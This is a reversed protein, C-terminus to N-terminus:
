EGGHVGKYPRDDTAQMWIRGSGKGERQTAERAKGKSPFTLPSPVRILHGGADSVGVGVSVCSGRTPAVM